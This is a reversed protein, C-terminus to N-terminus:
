DEFRGMRARLREIEELLELALAAGAANVGLDHQLRLASRARRISVSHFRWRAPERGRPELVGHEVLEFVQEAPLRCARCLEGLTLGTDEDLLEATLATIPDRPM